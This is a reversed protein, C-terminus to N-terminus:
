RDMGALHLHQILFRDMGTLHRHQILFRDMGALAFLGCPATKHALLHLHQILFRDLGSRYQHQIL